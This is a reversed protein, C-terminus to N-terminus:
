REAIGYKKRLESAYRLVEEPAEVIQPIRRNLWEGNFFTVDTGLQERALKLFEPDRVAKQFAERYANVYKAPTNPPLALWKDVTSPGTWHEYAARALEDIQKEALLEAFVPVDKLSPRPSYGDGDPDPTGSQVLPEVIGLDMPHNFIAVNRTAQLDIQRNGSHWGGGRIWKLNWGLFEAGWLTMAHWTRAGRFVGVRVKAARKDTLRKRADHRIFLVSGGRHIGGIPIFERPDYEVLKRQLVHPQLLRSDAQMFTMGDHKRNALYNAAKINRDVASMYRYVFRPNGPLHKQMFRNILRGAIDTSGGPDGAVVVTVTQGDFSVDAAVPTTAMAWLACSLIAGFIRTM